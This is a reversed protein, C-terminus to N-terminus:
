ENRRERGPSSRSGAIGAKLKAIWEDVRPRGEGSAFVVVAGIREAGFCQPGDCRHLTEPARPATQAGDRKARDIARRWAEDALASDAWVLFGGTVNPRFAATAGDSFGGFLDGAQQSVNRLGIPGRIQKESAELRGDTPLLNLIQPPKSAGELQGAIPAAVALLAERSGPFASQATVACLYPGKAFLLYYGALCAADSVAPKECQAPRLFTFLGYADDRMRYLEVTVEHAGREYSQSELREFGYELYIEAGGDMFAYLETGQYVLPAAAARWDGYQRQLMERQGGAALLAWVVLSASCSGLTSFLM